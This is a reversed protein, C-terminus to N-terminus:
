RPEIRKFKAKAPTDDVNGATDIARVNFKHKGLKVKKRFPSSCRKFPKRDLKCEFTSNDESSVFQFKARAKATRKKPKKTITTEPAIKDGSDPPPDDGPTIELVAHTGQAAVYLHGDPGEAISAPNSGPPVALPTGTGTTPDFRTITNTTYHTVYAKGDSGFAVDWPTAAVPFTTKVGTTPNLRVLQSGEFATFWINGDPGAEGFTPGDITGGVETSPQLVPDAPNVRWVKDKEGGTVYLNGDPGTIVGRLGQGGGQVFWNTYAFGTTLRGLSTPMANFTAWINGDPGVTVDLPGTGVPSTSQFNSGNPDVRAIKGADPGVLINFYLKGDPGVAASNPGTAPGCPLTPQSILSTLTDPGIDFRGIYGCDTAAVTMTNGPGSAIGIPGGNQVPHSEVTAAGAGPTCVVVALGAAVVARRIM